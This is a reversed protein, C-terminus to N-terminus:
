LHFSNFQVMKPQPIVIDGIVLAQLVLFQKLIVQLEEELRCKRGWTVAFVRHCSRSLLISFPPGAVAVVQGGVEKEGMWWGYNEGENKL